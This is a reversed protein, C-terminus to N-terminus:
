GRRVGRAFLFRHLWATQGLRADALEAWTDDVLIAGRPGGAAGDVAVAGHCVARDASLAFIVDAKSEGKRVTHVPLGGLHHRGLFTAIDDRCSNRTVIHVACGGGKCHAESGTGRQLCLCLDLLEADLTHEGAM